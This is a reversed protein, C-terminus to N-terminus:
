RRGISRKLARILWALWWWKIMAVSVRDEM